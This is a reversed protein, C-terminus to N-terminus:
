AHSFEGAVRMAARQDALRAIEEAAATVSSGLNYITRERLSVIQHRFAAPHRLLLSIQEPAQALAEPKLISGVRERISSEIPEIELERWKKNRIRRPLDIFLVPKELGLAYEIAMASWDSILVHSRFLSDSEGMQDMYEFNDDDCHRAVIEECLGPSLRLTHYHPRMIVHFEADLLIQVLEAGCRNIISDDGWTPAILVVPKEGPQLWSNKHSAEDMLLELRHYGHEYLHKAPLKQLSERKQIEQVQHRGACFISDYNDYSDEFDVMHTSGMGHFIYVYYVPYLSKKLELNGLDMMTLVLTDAEGVQFFITRFSGEELCFSKMAPNELGLGPDSPDSTVYCVQRGLRGTLDTIIPKFHHWDQGSESYIVINRWQWSLKKFQRWQSWNRLLSM